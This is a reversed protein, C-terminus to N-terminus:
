NIGQLIDAKYGFPDYHPYGNDTIEKMCEKRRFPCDLNLCVKKNMGKQATEIDTIDYWYPNHGCNEVDFM